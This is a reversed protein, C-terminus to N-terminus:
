GPPPLGGDLVFASYGKQALVFAAASSRRGSDCCVVWQTKNDLAGLKIRLVYLPLNVAGPLSGTAFESPLRVDLWRAEGSDVKRRAEELSIKRALPENLLQRFDEKSLRMLQTPILATVTANRQTESILAEEGFCAGPGLEALRIPKAHAQERTVLCRGSMIVYFYDGEAGQKVIVEGPAASVSQMRMFMAQLNSPPVMQFTRIQLLKGMWDDNEGASSLDSVEIAGTQDWTLMVDLLGADVNLVQVAGVCRASVRRPSQHAVRHMGSPEGGVVRALAKGSADLLHVEGKVVYIASRADDGIKFLTHGKPLTQLQAKRLLDTLSEPKLANLPVLATCLAPDIPTPTTM